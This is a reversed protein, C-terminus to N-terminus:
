KAGKAGAAPMGSMPGGPKKDSKADTKKANPDALAITEGPKLGQAIVTATESRKAIKVSREEFRKGNQAFVYQQGNKEFIAQNPVHIADPIKEVIIEVDALLGPRLLVNLQSDEEPPPPLKARAREEETGSTSAAAAAFRMLDANSAAGGPAPASAKAPAKAPVPAGKAIMAAMAAGQPPAPARKANKEATEMIRRVQEPTAGLGTLLQRMDLSFVVDFKKAPDGSFINSSATGSMNKIKGRFKKDPVADLHISVEQGEHLNARDLEGVRAVVELESLDLVDAVPIGPQLTDGERIDPLQMGPFFFGQGRNQRIAVLGTMPSLVKAQAIRQNERAVDIMSKARQARLVAIEALAQEQRSKIDSELQSLRRRSEELNLVNKKADIESLLPNRKVELEARRVSYKAKLLDVQDQNTRIALDAQSKKIQEDTQDVELLTEDLSARRESDDFEVILDKEHALSGLPALRTVQVTSFLNPATLTASRVARLEGRSYARIVIDGRLVKAVPVLQQRQPLQKYVAYVGWGAGLLILLVAVRIILKKM